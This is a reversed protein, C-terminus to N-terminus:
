PTSPTSFIEGALKDLAPRDQEPTKIVEWYKDLLEGATLSSILASGPLRLRTPMQPRRVLHFEFAAEAYKRVAAEDLFPDMERPYDVTLRVVAEALARLRAEQDAQSRELAALRLGLVEEQRALSAELRDLARLLAQDRMATGINARSKAAGRSGTAGKSNELEM